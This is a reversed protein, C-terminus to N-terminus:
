LVLLMKRSKEICEDYRHLLRLMEVSKKCFPLCYPEAVEYLRLAERYNGQIEAFLCYQEIRNELINTRVMLESSFVLNLDM